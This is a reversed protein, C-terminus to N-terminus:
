APIFSYIGWTNKVFSQLLGM